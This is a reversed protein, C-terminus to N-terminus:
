EDKLFVFARNYTELEGPWEEADWTIVVGVWQQTVTQTETDTEPHEAVQVPDYGVRTKM